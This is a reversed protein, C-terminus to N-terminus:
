QYPQRFCVVSVDSCLNEGTAKFLLFSTGLQKKVESWQRSQFFNGYDSQAIFDDYEQTLKEDNVDLLM